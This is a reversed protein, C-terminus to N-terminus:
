REQFQLDNIKSEVTKLPINFGVNTGNGYESQVWIEGGHMEVISKSLALGLGTGGYHKTLPAELQEFPTFLRCMDEQKIGIGSDRVSIQIRRGYEGEVAVASVNVEGGEPTFKVANSILNIIVQKIKIADVGVDTIQDDIHSTIRINRRSKHDPFLALCDGILQRIPYQTLLLTDKGSELKTFNLISTILALLHEGSKIIYVLYEEQKANVEGATGDKILESFGLIANLPTRLEHSMNALFSSKTKNAAELKKLAVILDNTRTAVEAELFVATEQASDKISAVASEINAAMRNFNAALEGIENNLNVGEIRAHLNKGLNKATASITVIPNIVTTMSWKYIFLGIVCVVSVFMMLLIVYNKSDTKIDDNVSTLVNKIDGAIFSHIGNIYKKKYYDAEGIHNNDFASLTQLLFTKHKQWNREVANYDRMNQASIVESLPTIQLKASGDRFGDLVEDFDTIHKNIEKRNFAIDDFYNNLHYAIEFLRMRQSGLLDIMRGEMSIDRFFSYSFIIFFSFLILLFFGFVSAKTKISNLLM